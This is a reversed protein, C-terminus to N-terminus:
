LPNKPPTRGLLMWAAWDADTPAQGKLWGGEALVAFGTGRALDHLEEPYWCRMPHDESFTFVDGGEKHTLTMDYHVTIIDHELDPVPTAERRVHIEENEMVKIRHEPHIKFVCPAHWFDFLFLGDPELHERATVLLARADEDRNQYSMVHFLSTVADFTKGLRITRVDGEHLVPLDAPSPRVASLMRRGMDLMTESIDVGEVTLGKRALELAHRGTGCGLDLLSHLVRNGHTLLGLVFDTEEAYNKDQYLLNYYKAYDGFM